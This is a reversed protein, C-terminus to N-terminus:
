DLGGLLGARLRGIEGADPDARGAGDVLARARDGVGAVEGTPIAREREPLPEGLLEPRPHPDTVVDLDGRVRLGPQAGPAGVLRQEADEPAGPHAPPQHELVLRPQPPPSNSLSLAHSPRPAAPSNPCM